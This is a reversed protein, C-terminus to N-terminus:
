SARLAKPANPLEVPEIVLTQIFAVLREADARDLRVPLRLNAIAGSQLPFPYSILGDSTEAHSGDLAEGAARPPTTRPVAPASHSTELREQELKSIREGALQRERQLQENTGSARELSRESEQLRFRLEDMTELDAQIDEPARAQEATPPALVLELEGFSEPLAEYAAELGAAPPGAAEVPWQEATVPDAVPPPDEHSTEVMSTEVMSTAVMPALRLPAEAAFPPLAFPQVASAAAPESVPESAPPPATLPLMGPGPYGAPATPTPSAFGYETKLPGGHQRALALAVSSGSVYGGKVLLRGLPEGNQKQRELVQELDHVDLLGAAVLIQGLRPRGADAPGGDAALRGSEHIM